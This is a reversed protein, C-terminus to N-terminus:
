AERVIERLWIDYTYKKGDFNRQSDAIEAADLDYKTILKEEWDESDDNYEEKTIQIERTAKIKMNKAEKVMELKQPNERSGQLQDRPNPRAESRLPLSLSLM